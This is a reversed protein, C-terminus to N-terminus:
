RDNFLASLPGYSGHFLASHLGEILLERRATSTNKRPELEAIADLILGKRRAIEARNCRLQELALSRIRDSEHKHQTVPLEQQTLM